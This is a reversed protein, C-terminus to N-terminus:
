TEHIRRTLKLFFSTINQKQFDYLKLLVYISLRAPWVESERALVIYVM